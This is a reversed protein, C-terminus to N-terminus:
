LAIVSSPEAIAQSSQGSFDQAARRNNKKGIALSPLGEIEAEDILLGLLRNRSIGLCEALRRSKTDQTQTILASIGVTCKERM